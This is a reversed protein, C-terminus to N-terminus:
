KGTQWGEWVCTMMNVSWCVELGVDTSGHTNKGGGECVRASDLEQMGKRGVANGRADGCVKTSSEKRHQAARAWAGLQYEDTSM